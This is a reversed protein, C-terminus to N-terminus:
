ICPSFTRETGKIVAGFLCLSRVAHRHVNYFCATRLSTQYGDFVSFFRLFGPRDGRAALSATEHTHILSKITLVMLTCKWNIKLLSYLLM